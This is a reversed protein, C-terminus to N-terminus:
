HFFLQFILHTGAWSRSRRADGALPEHWAGKYESQDQRTKFIELWPVKERWPVM